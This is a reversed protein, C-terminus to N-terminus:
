SLIDLSWSCKKSPKGYNSTKFGEFRVHSGEWSLDERWSSNERFAKGKYTWVGVEIWVIDLRRGVNVGTTEVKIGESLLGRPTCSVM